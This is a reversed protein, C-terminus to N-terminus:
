RDCILLFDFIHRLYFLDNQYWQSPKIDRGDSRDKWIMENFDFYGDTIFLLDKSLDKLKVSKNSEYNKNSKMRYDDAHTKINKRSTRKFIRSDVETESLQM